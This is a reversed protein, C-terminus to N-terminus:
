KVGVDSPMCTTFFTSLCQLSLENALNSLITLKERCSTLQNKLRDFKKIITPNKFFFWFLFM